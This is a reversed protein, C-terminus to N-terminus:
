ALNFKYTIFYCYDGLGTEIEGFNKCKVDEVRLMLKSLVFFIYFWVLCVIWFPMMTLNHKRAAVGSLKTSTDASSVELRTM